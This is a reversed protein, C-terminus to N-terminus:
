LSFKIIRTPSGHMFIKIAEGSFSKEKQINEVLKGFISFGSALLM